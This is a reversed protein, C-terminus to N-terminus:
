GEEAVQREIIAALRKLMRSKAQYVQDVSLGLREAVRGADEGAIAYAEFAQRDADNFEAALTRMAQRMHYQRWEAEWAAEVDADGTATRIAAEVDQVQVEGRKQCFRRYAAHIVATKLYARFKGRSPDYQFGPMAQTLALLVDQLVEDCDAPQLGQRRAFARILESYRECFETWASADSGTNLRALLTAHTATPIEM